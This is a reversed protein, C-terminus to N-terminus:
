GRQRRLFLEVDAPPIPRSYHYGQAEHCGEARLFELQPTTEVGEAVLRLNLQRGMAIVARSIAMDDADGPVGAVFSKDIKLYDIPFQKLYSLSSYGTGFDDVAVTVGMEHLQMLVRRVREPYQMMASETLELVLFKPAVRSRRLSDDVERVFEPRALQRASLNVAMKLDGLGADQWARLQRLATDLVWQGIPGIMGTAEAVPIFREPAIEGHDPHNWRALAELGTVKGSHLDVVPQYVVRLQDREMAQRLSNAMMLSEFAQANMEVSFYQYANRGHEKARYMAADANRLLDEISGGDQPFCAIGISASTFLEHGAVNFPQGFSDLLKQAAVSASQSTPLDDLLVAFEDGGLRAVTDSARLCATFREAVQKLLQDGIAHGLSDNITKFRDLDIFLVAVTHGLRKARNLSAACREQFLIRNPLLTLADHHALFELRQEYDKHHSIDNFVSVFHHPQGDPGNVASISFLAPYVDGNKRRSWIEGKWRGGRTLEEWMRDYFSQPHMGSRLFDPSRGLTEDGSYGTMTSYAANVYVIQRTTDTIMVSELTNELASAVLWLRHATREREGAAELRTTTLDGLLARLRPPVQESGGFHERLQAELEVQLEDSLRGVGTPVHALV